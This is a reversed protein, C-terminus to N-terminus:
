KVISFRKERYTRTDRVTDRYQRLPKQVNAIREEPTPHTQNFGGSHQSQNQELALLMTLLSSPEYWAGELLELARIDAKFEQEQSYGEYLATVIEEAAEDLVEALESLAISVVSSSTEAIASVVRNSSIVEISHQLQIHAIEHALVAALADESKACNLLGRTIFIHGGSTAFANIEDSDLIATHYGNYIEPKSSNIVIATTIQNLYLTLDPDKDYLQYNTLLNAGVARGIFYEQEPTIYELARGISHASRSLANAGKSDGMDDASDGIAQAMGACSLVLATFVSFICIPLIQKIIKM